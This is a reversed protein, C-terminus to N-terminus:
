VPEGVWPLAAHGLALYRRGTDNIFVMGPHWRTKEALGAAILAADEPVEVSAGLPEYQALVRLRSVHKSQLM